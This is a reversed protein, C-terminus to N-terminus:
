PIPSWEPAAISFALVASYRARGFIDWPAPSPEPSPEATPSPSPRAPAIAVAPAALGLQTAAIEVRGVYGNAFGRQPDGTNYRSLARRLAAQSPEGPRPQYGARLVRGAASLNRCPDFAQEVSLNLWVLNRSNIQAVGLDLNAGRALLDRAISAAEAADRARRLPRPGSNVGIALPDFRSETWAVAALTEPAVGPACALSLSLVLNLDLM